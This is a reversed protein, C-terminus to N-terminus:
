TCKELGDTVVCSHSRPDLGHAYTAATAAIKTMTCCIFERTVAGLITPSDTPRCGIVTIKEISKQDSMRPPISPANSATGIVAATFTRKLRYMQSLFILGLLSSSCASNM